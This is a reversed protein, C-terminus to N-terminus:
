HITGSKPWSPSLKGGKGLKRDGKGWDLGPPLDNSRARKYEVRTEGLYHKSVLKAEDKTEEKKMQGTNKRM